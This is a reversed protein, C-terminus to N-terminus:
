RWNAISSISPAERTERPEGLDVAFLRKMLATIKQWDEPANRLVMLCLNRLTQATRGQGLLVDIRGPQLIPEETELGSMPYLLDVSVRAAAEILAPRALTAEDPTCYILEEGQNRFRM